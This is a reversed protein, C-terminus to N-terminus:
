SSVKTTGYISRNLFAEISFAAVGLATSHTRLNSFDIKLDQQNFWLAQNEIWELLPRKLWREAEAMRNGIIVQEPNFINIINNIGIGLYKAIQEFLHISTPNGQEALEMIKELSLENGYQQQVDTQM